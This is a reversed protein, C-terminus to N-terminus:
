YRHATKKAYFWKNLNEELREVGGEYHRDVVGSISAEKDVQRAKFIEVLLARGEDNSMLYFCLSWGIAYSFGQRGNLKWWQKHDYDLFDRLDPIAKALSARQMMREWGKSPKIVATTGYVEIQEFYEALGENLWTPMKEYNTWLIGHFAEHSIVQLMSKVDRNKWVAAENTKKYYFGTTSVHTDFVGKQYALFDSQQGFIKVKISTHKTFPIGNEDNLVYFIKKVATIVKRKTDLPLKFNVPIVDVEFNIDEGAYKDSLNEAKGPSAHKKDSFHVRGNEDVWRYVGAYTLNMAMCTLIAVLLNM